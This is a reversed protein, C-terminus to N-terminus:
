DEKRYNSKTKHQIMLAEHYLNAYKLAEKTMGACAYVEMLYAYVQATSFYTEGKLKERITKADELLKIAENYKNLGALIRGKLQFLSSVDTSSWNKYKEPYSDEYISISINIEKEADNFKKLEM